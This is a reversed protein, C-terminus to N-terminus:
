YIKFKSNQIGRLSVLTKSFQEYQKVVKQTSKLVNTPLINGARRKRGRYIPLRWPPKFIFSVPTVPKVEAVIALKFASPAM